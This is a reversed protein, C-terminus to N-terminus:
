HPDRGPIFFSAILSQSKIQYIYMGSFPAEVPIFDKTLEDPVEDLALAQIATPITSGPARGGGRGGGRAHRNGGRGGRGLALSSLGPTPGGSRTVRDSM